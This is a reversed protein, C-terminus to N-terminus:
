VLQASIFSVYCVTPRKNRYIIRIYTKIRRTASLPDIVTLRYTRRFSYRQSQSARESNEM